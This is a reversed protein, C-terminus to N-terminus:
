SVPMKRAASPMYLCFGRYLQTPFNHKASFFHLGPQAPTECKQPRKQATNQFIAKTATTKQQHLRPSIRPLRPSFVTEGVCSLFVGSIESINQPAEWDPV